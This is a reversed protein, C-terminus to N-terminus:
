PPQALLCITARYDNFPGAAYAAQMMGGMMPTAAAASMAKVFARRDLHLDIKKM